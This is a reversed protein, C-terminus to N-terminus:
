TGFLSVGGYNDEFFEHVYALYYNANSLGDGERRKLRWRLFYSFMRKLEAASIYMADCYVKV